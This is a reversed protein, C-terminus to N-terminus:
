TLFSHVGLYEPRTIRTKMPVHLGKESSEFLGEMIELVHFAVEASARHPRGQKLASALELVGLGRGLPAYGATRGM